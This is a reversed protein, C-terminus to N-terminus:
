DLTILLTCWWVICSDMRPRNFTLSRLRVFTAEKEYQPQRRKLTININVSQSLFGPQSHPSHQLTRNGRPLLWRPTPGQNVGNVAENMGGGNINGGGPFGLGPEIRVELKIDIQNRVCFLSTLPLLRICTILSVLVHKWDSSATKILDRGKVLKALKM